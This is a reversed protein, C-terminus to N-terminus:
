FVDLSAEFATTRRLVTSTCPREPVEFDELLEVPEVLKAVPAVYIEDVVVQDAVLFCHLTKEGVECAPVLVV